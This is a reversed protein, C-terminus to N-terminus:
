REAVDVRFLEITGCAESGEGAVTECGIECMGPASLAEAHSFESGADIDFVAAADGFLPYRGEVFMVLEAKAEVGLELSPGSALWEAACQVPEEVPLPPLEIEGSDEDAAAAEASPSDDTAAAGTVSAPESDSNEGDSVAGDSESSGISAKATAELGLKVGARVTVEASHPVLDPAMESDLVEASQTWGEGRRYLSRVHMKQDFSLYADAGADDVELSVVLSVGAALKLDVLSNAYGVTAGAYPIPIEIEISGDGAVTIGMDAVLHPYADIAVSEIEPAAVTPLAGFDTITCSELVPAVWAGRVYRPAIWRRSDWRGPIWRGRKYYGARTAIPTGPVCV